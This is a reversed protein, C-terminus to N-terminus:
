GVHGRLSACASTPLQCPLYTAGELAVRLRASSSAFEENQPQCGPLQVTLTSCVAAVPRASSALPRGQLATSNHVARQSEPTPGRKGIDRPLPEARPLNGPQFLGAAGGLLIADIGFQGGAIGLVRSGQASCQDLGLRKAFPPPTLRHEGQVATAALGIRQAHETPSLCQETVIETGLRPRFQTGQALNVRYMRIPVPTPPAASITLRHSSLSM